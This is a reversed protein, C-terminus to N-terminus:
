KNVIIKAVNKIWMNGSADKVVLQVKNDAKDLPKGDLVTGLITGESNVLEPTYEKAYGDEAEVVVTSFEKVGYAGLVEKLAYGKWNQETESGDKKKLIATIEKPSLKEADINTFEVTGEKTGEISIIWEANQVAVEQKQSCGTFSVLILIAFLMFYITKKMRM